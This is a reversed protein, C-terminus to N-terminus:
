AAVGTADVWQTGDWWIPKGLTTDFWPRGVRLFTVPRNATTSAYAPEIRVFVDIEGSTPHSVTVKGVAVVYTGAALPPTNTLGSGDVYLTDNVSWMSTDLSRVKGAVTCRGNQNNDIDHTALGIVGITSADASNPVGVALRNGQAGIICVADGNHITVGSKNVIPTQLEEGVQIIVDDFETMVNLVNNAYYTRGELYPIAVGTQDQFDTYEVLEPAVSDIEAELAAFALNVDSRLDRIEASVGNGALVNPRRPKYGGFSRSIVLSM